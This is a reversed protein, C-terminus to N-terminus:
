PLYWFCSRATHAQCDELAWCCMVSRMMSGMHPMWKISYQVRAQCYALDWCRVVHAAYWMSGMHAMCEGSYQVHAQCDALDWCRVVHAANGAGSAAGSGKGGTLVVKM